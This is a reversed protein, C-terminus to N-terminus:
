LRCRQRYVPIGGTCYGRNLDQIQPAGCRFEMDRAHYTGAADIDDSYFKQLDLEVYEEAKDSVVIQSDFDNRMQNTPLLTSVNFNHEGNELSLDM